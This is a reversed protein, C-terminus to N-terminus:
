DGCIDRRVLERIYEVKNPVEDLKAIVDADKVKNMRLLYAKTLKKSRAYYRRCATRQAETAM